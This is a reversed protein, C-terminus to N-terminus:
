ISLIPGTSNVSTTNTATMTTTATTGMKTTENTTMASTDTASQEQVLFWFEYLSKSNLLTAGSGVKQRASGLKNLKVFLGLVLRIQHM